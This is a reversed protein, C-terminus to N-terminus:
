PNLLEIQCDIAPASALRTDATLLPTGAAEALAVYVADYPTISSRLEWLRPLFPTHSVRTVPLQRLQVIATAALAPPVAGSAELRRIANAVEIDVLYPALLQPEQTLRGRAARGHASGSVLAEVLVSADVVTM